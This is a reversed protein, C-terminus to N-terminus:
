RSRSLDAAAFGRQTRVRYEPHNKVSLSINRYKTPDKGTSYDYALSYNIRNNELMKRMPDRLDNAGFFAEGGTQAALIALGHQLDRASDQMQSSLRLSGINVQKESSAVKADFSYIMVGARAAGSVAPRIDSIAVEGGVATMSIGESFLAIIRQGPQSALKQTASQIGAVVARRQSSHEHLLMMCKSEVEQPTTGRAVLSGTTYEESDIIRAALAEAEPERRAVKGCLAPTLFSEVESQAPRLKAIEADLKTRDAVFEAAGGPKGKTTMLAILDQGAAHEAVFQRLGAKVSEMSNHSLHLTDVLLVIRRVTSSPASFFVIEQRANDEQLVFDERTLGEVPRGDRDTVVAQLIISRNGPQADAPSRSVQFASEKGWASVFFFPLMASTIFRATNM